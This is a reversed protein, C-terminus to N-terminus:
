NFLRKNLRKLVKIKDLLQLDKEITNDQNLKKKEMGYISEIFKEEINDRLEPHEIIIKELEEISNIDGEATYKNLKLSAMGMVDSQERETKAIQERNERNIRSIERGPLFEHPDAM